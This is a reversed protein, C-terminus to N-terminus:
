GKKAKTLVRARGGELVVMDEIRVGGWGAIYIGPEVTFVMGDKLVHESRRGLRPLEHPVLGIGHGLGHGFAAGYGAKEIVTRALADAQGGTAGVQITAMATLQAGLVVDYVKRFTDDPTGLCLTRTMDSCYGNVQAGLDVVVPEGTAIPRSSPKHHPLSGNPGAAVIIDFAVKEAGAERIHREVEWAVEKETMGPQVVSVLHNFAADGIAAAQEMAEREAPEKISRLPEVVGETAVLDLPVKNEKVSALWQHFAVYSIHASEFGLRRGVEGALGPFWHHLEGEVQVIQFLPAEQGGQEVYRFDTALIAKDQSILLYGASGTFGSLYRRNEPQSILIADLEKEVLQQRLKKLRESVM